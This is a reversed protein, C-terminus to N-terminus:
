NNPMVITVEYPTCDDGYKCHMWDICRPQKLMQKNAIEPQNGLLTMGDSPDDIPYCVSFTVKMTEWGLNMEIRKVYERVPETQLNKKSRVDYFEKGYKSAAEEKLEADCIRDIGREFHM